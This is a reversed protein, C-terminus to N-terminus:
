EVAIIRNSAAASLDHLHLTEQLNSDRFTFRVRIRISVWIRVMVM